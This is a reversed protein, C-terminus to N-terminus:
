RFRRVILTLDFSKSDYTGSSYISWGISVDFADSTAILLSLQTVYTRYSTYGLDLDDLLENQQFGTSAYLSVNDSVGAEVAFTGFLSFRDYDRLGFDTEYVATEYDVGVNFFIAARDSIHIKKSLSLNPSFRQYETDVNGLM